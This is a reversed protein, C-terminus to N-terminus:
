EEYLWPKCMMCYWNVGDDMSSVIDEREKESLCGEHYWRGCMDEDCGYWFIDNVEDDIKGHVGCVSCVYSAAIREAMTDKERAKEEKQRRKLEQKVTKEETKKQKEEEKKQRKLKREEVEKQKEERRVERNRKRTEMEQKKKQTLQEKEQL